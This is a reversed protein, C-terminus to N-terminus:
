IIMKIIVSKTNMVIPSINNITHEYVLLDIDIDLSWLEKIDERGTALTRQDVSKKKNESVIIMVQMSAIVISGVHANPFCTNLFSSSIITAFSELVNHRDVIARMM